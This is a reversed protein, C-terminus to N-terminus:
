RINAGSTIQQYLGEERTVSDVHGKEGCRSCGMQVEHRTLKGPRKPDEHPDRKRNKKPRGPAKEIPPPDLLYDVSPWYREGALPLIIFEYSKMYQEKHYCKNFFKETLDWKKCTCTKKILDVYVDHYDSVEFVNHSSPFVECKYAMNKKKNLKLQIRPCVTVVQSFMQTQMKTLRTMIAKRIDQLINIIHKSRSQIIYGNSTEAM